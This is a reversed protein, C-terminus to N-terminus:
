IGKILVEFDSIQKDFRNIGEEVIKEPSLQGWSEIIFEFDDKLKEVDVNESAKDLDKHKYFILGSSHKAHDKGFGLKAIASFEVEQEDLLKVIPMEPYVSKIKPDKAVLDKSYIIGPGKVNLTLQVQCKACGAGKCTCEEPVSYSKVDTILPILGVRHALVEDYMVSTNNKIDLEDVAMIPIENMFIRRLSNLYYLPEKSIELRLVNNKKNLKKISVM